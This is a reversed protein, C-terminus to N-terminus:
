QGRKYEGCWDGEYVFPQHQEMGPYSHYDAVDRPRYVPVPPFRRCVGM